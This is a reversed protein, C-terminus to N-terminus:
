ETRAARADRAYLVRAVRSMPALCAGPCTRTQLAPSPCPEPRRWSSVRSPGSAEQCPLARGSNAGAGASICWHVLTQNFLRGFLQSFIKQAPM